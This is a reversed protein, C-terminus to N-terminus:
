SHRDDTGQETGGVAARPRLTRLEPLSADGSDEESSAPESHVNQM